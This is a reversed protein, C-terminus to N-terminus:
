KKFNGIWQEVYHEGKKGLPEIYKTFGKCIFWTAVTTVILTVAVAGNYSIMGYLVEFVGCGLTAIVLFHVLYLSYSIEGLKVFVPLAFFKQLPELCLVAFVLLLAGALHYPVVMVVPIWGYITGELHVGGSPYSSLYLGAAFIIWLLWTQKKLDDVIKTQTHMVDYLVFGFFVGAYDTLLLAVGLVAYVAYRWKKEGILWCIGYVFLAGL